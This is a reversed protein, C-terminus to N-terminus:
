GGASIRFIEVKDGDKLSFSDDLDIEENVAFSVVQQVKFHDLVDRVTAAGPFTLTTRGKVEPPLLDRLIGFLRVHIKIM